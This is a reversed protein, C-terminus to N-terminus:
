KSSSLLERRLIRFVRQAQLSQPFMHDFTNIMKTRKCFPLDAVIGFRKSVVFSEVSGVKSNVVGNVVFAAMVVAVVTGVVLAVVLVVVVVEVGIVSM